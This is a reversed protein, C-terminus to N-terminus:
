DTKGYNKEYVKILLVGIFYGALAGFIVDSLFHFNFYVRSFAVLFAFIIWFFRQRRIYITLVPLLSFVVIAHTSPFSYNVINTFPYTFTSIPRPKHILLKVFFNLTFSVIFILWLLYALKKNKKYLIFSPIVLMVFLVISFNTVFGLLIDLIPIKMEKFFEVLEKDFIYSLLFLFTGIIFIIIYSFKKYNKM